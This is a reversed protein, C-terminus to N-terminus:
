ALKIEEEQGIFSLFLEAIHPDFHKGSQDRIYGLAKESSWARRYPRDSTLADWVDIVAFIRASLPIQEGKLQNPYGSGDWKEHHGYPIDLASQLYPIPALMEYAYLPHKRMVVWEEETLPGPKLLIHDPIGMKGIDHLLSGRRIQILGAEGIKMKRALRLTLDTVRQTHGETEKDRLDLARSWGEITADYALTLEQNSGQLDSFLSANDVAIAAQGALTELFEVWEADTELEGRHFVELVGKIEGKALLPVAYYAMFGEENLAPMRLVDTGRVRLDPVFITQRDKAARGAFGEGLHLKAIELAKTNFGQGQYFELELQNPNLLLVCAADVGLCSRVQTLVVGLNIRLDTNAIITLDIERLAQVDRLRRQADEFLRMRELANGVMEGIAYLLRTSATLFPEVGPRNMRVALVLGMIRSESQLPVFIAPGIQDQNSIDALRLADRAYQLTEYPQLTRLIEGWVGLNAPLQTGIADRLHGNAVVTRFHSDGPNILVAASSDADITRCIEDLIVELMDNATRVQRLHASIAFLTELEETKGRLSAEAQWRATIDQVMSLNGILRGDLGYLPTNTWACQIIRGSQTYNEIITQNGIRDQFLAAWSNESPSSMKVPLIFDGPRKGLVEEARYGFIEEAAPNWANIRYSPDMVICAIPMREIWLQLRAESQELAEKRRKLEVLDDALEQSQLNIHKIDLNQLSSTVTALIGMLGVLFAKNLIMTSFPIDADFTPILMITVMTIVSTILTYRPPLYLSSVVLGLILYNLSKPFRNIVSVSIVTIQITLITLIAVVSYYRSRSLLYLVLIAVTAAVIVLTGALTYEILIALPIGVAAALIFILLLASLM